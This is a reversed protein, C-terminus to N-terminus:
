NPITWKKTVVCNMLHQISIEFSKRKSFLSKFAGFIDLGEGCFYDDFDYLSNEINFTQFYDHMFEDGEVGGFGLDNQLTNAQSVRKKMTGRHKEIIVFIQEFTDKNEV